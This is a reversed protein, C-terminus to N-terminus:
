VKFKGVMRNLTEALKALDGARYDVQTSNSSIEESSQTVKQIDDAISCAALTSDAINRNMNELGQSAQAVNGAIERTTASQEEVATAIVGVINNVENVVKTIHGIQSVTGDTSNQITEVRSKIEGTADATQRALEKIENAVVAFGKGADGARAAEITANLALLNVQESIDTITEVVTGIEQAAQGLDEVQLSAKEAQIVADNTIVHAKESNTGIEGITTKIEEAAAAVQGVNASTQEMAASVSNMNERMEESSIAVARNKATSQELGTSLNSSIDSLARSSATLQDANSSVDRIIAQIKEMFVNFWKSLEGIEDHSGVNLRKTLDGEGEAVDKLGTVVHNIPRTISRTISFVLIAVIVVIVIAILTSIKGLRVISSFMDAETVTVAFMWGLRDDTKLAALKKDGKYSYTIVGNKRAMMKRGWDTDNITGALLLEKNQHAIPVGQGNVLFGYGSEGIKVTDVFMESVTYMSIVTFFVGSVTDKTRIPASVVLIPENSKKSKVVESISVQGKMAERFYARGSVDITGVSTAESSAVISGDATAINIGEYYPFKKKIEVLEKNAAKRAAKGVFSDLLASQFVKQGAWIETTLKRDHLWNSMLKMNNVASKNLQFTLEERLANRALLYSVTSITALGVIVLLTMPLLFKLRINFQM